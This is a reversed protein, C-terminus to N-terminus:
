RRAFREIEGERVRRTRGEAELARLHALTEGVAMWGEWDDLRGLGFLAEAIEVCSASESGVLGLVRAEREVHHALIEDIRRDLDDLPPGHAPLALTFPGGRLAALSRRYAGLPDDPGGYTWAINPTIQSLVHDGVLLVGSSLHWLCAHSPSHGPTILVRFREGALLVEEDHEVGQDAAFPAAAARMRAVARAWRRLTPEGVGFRRFFDVAEADREPAHFWVQLLDNDLRPMLVRAGRQQLWAALGCHDIHFHTVFVQDPARAGGGRAALEAELLARAEPTGMGTDILALGQPGEVLYVNIERLALPLPLVLTHLRAVPSLPTSM